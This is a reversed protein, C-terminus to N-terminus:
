MFEFVWFSFVCNNKIDKTMWKVVLVSKTAEFIGERDAVFGGGFFFGIYSSLRLIGCIYLSLSVSFFSRIHVQEAM